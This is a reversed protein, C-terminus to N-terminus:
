DNWSPSLEALIKRITESKFGRAALFRGIKAPSTSKQQKSHRTALQLATQYDQDVSHQRTASAIAAASLERKKLRAIIANIGYKGSNFYNDFLTQALADDNLYGVRRLELVSQEINEDIYGKAALRRRMEKESFARIALLKLAAHRCDTDNLTAIMPLARM